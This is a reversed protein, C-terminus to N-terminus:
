SNAKGNHIVARGPILLGYGGYRRRYRLGITKGEEAKKSQYTAKAEDTRRANDRGLWGRFSREWIPEFM